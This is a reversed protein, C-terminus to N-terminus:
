SCAAAPTLTYKETGSGGQGAIQGGGGGVMMGPQDLGDPFSMTYTGTYHSAFVGGFEYTGTLGGSLRMSGIGTTLTFPANIDCVLQNVQWDELGGVVTYASPANTDFSVSARGVGRKSKAELAVAGTKNTEGPAAYGFTADAKVPTGEPTVSAGGSLTATVTGGAPKGDVASVPQAVITATAGPKLGSRKAPETTAKLNICRGSQVIKNIVSFVITYNMAAIGASDEKFKDITGTSVNGATRNVKTTMGGLEGGTSVDVFSGSGAKIDGMRLRADNTGGAITANDDFVVTLVADTQATAGAGTKKNIFSADLHIEGSAIGDPDPCTVAKIKATVSAKADPTDSSGEVAIEATGTTVQADVSAKGGVSPPATFSGQGSTPPTETLSRELYVSLVFLQALLGSGSANSSADRRYAMLPSRTRVDNEFPKFAAVTATLADALNEDSGFADALGFDRFFMMEADRDIKRVAAEQAEASMSEWQRSIDPTPTSGPAAASVPVSTQVAEPAMADRQTAGSCAALSLVVVVCRLARRSMGVRYAVGLNNPAAVQPAALQALVESWPRDSDFRIDGPLGLGREDILEYGVDAV